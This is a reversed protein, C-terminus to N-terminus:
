AIRQTDFGTLYLSSNVTAEGFGLSIDFGDGALSAARIKAIDDLSVKGKEDNVKWAATGGVSFGAEMGIRASATVSVYPLFSADTGRTLWIL